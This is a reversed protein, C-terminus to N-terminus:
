DKRKSVDTSSQQPSEAGTPNPLNGSRTAQSIQAIRALPSHSSSTGLRTPVTSSSRLSMGSASPDTSVNPDRALPSPRYLTRRGLASQSTSPGSLSAPPAKGIPTSLNTPRISFRRKFTAEKPSFTEKETYIPPPGDPVSSITTASMRRSRIPISSSSSPTLTGMITSRRSYARNSPMPGDNDLAFLSSIPPARSGARQRSTAPTENMAAQTHMVELARILDAITTNELVDQNIEEQSPVSFLSSRRNQRGSRVSTENSAGFVSSKRDMVPSFMSGRRQNQIFMSNRRPTGTAPTFLPREGVTIPEHSPRDSCLGPFMPFLSSRRAKSPPVGGTFLSLNSNLAQVSPEFKGSLGQSATVTSYSSNFSPFEDRPSEPVSMISMKRDTAQPLIEQSGRRKFPLLNKIFNKGDAISFKKKKGVPEEFPMNIATYPDDGTSVTRAPKSSKFRRNIARQIQANDGGWTWENPGPVPRTVPSIQFDSMARSRHPIDSPNFSNESALIQSDSFGQVDGYYGTMGVSDQPNEISALASVVKALLDTTHKFAEATEFTKQRNIRNLDTDSSGKIMPTGNIRFPPSDDLDFSESFARKRSVVPCDVRYMTLEPCSISRPLRHDDVGPENYVPQILLFFSILIQHLPAFLLKFSDIHFHM